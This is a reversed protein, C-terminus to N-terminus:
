SVSDTNKKGTVMARALNEKHLRGSVIVGAIHLSILVLMLNVFSEHIEEWYEEEPSDEDPAPLPTNVDITFALPGTHTKVAHVKMGTLTTALLTVLLVVIMWGGLPNHGLFRAPKKALLDKTYALVVAPSRVFDSFRAYHGGIFGWVVRFLVLAVIAYGSYIHWPTEEEGTLYSVVFLLVLLWHFIRVPLDWVKVTKPDPMNLGRSLAPM